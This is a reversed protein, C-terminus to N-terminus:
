CVKNDGNNGDIEGEKKDNYQAKSVIVYEYEDNLDVLGNEVYSKPVTVVYSNGSKWIKGRFMM